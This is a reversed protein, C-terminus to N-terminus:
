KFFKPCAGASGTGIKQLVMEPTISSMCINGKDKDCNSKYCPSCPAHGILKEGRGYLDIENSSTSGFLAVVKKKLAIALHLAITDGTVVVDCLNIISMFQRLTNHCGTSIANGKLRQCIIKNREVEEPGGLILIAINHRNLSKAVEVFGDITWKKTDFVKGCGTNLGVVKKQNFRYKKRLSDTYDNEQPTLHLVYEEREYPFGAVECIVEQYTKKNEKFKLKDDLGLRYAYDAGKNLTLLEGKDGMYFGRKEGAKIKTVLATAEAMKDLSLALDFSEVELRLISGLNYVLLCDILPNAKLVDKAGPFTLWTIHSDPWKKKIITLLPTTRLVDGAAGLKIILIRKGMPKYDHCRNCLKYPACPREGKFFRCDTKFKM